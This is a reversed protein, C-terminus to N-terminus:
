DVSQLQVRANLIQDIRKQSDLLHAKTYDDVVFDKKGSL